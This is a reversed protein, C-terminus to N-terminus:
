IPEPSLSRTTRIRRLEQQRRRERRLQNQPNRCRPIDLFYMRDYYQVPGTFWIQDSGAILADYKSADKFFSEASTYTKASKTLKERVFKSCRKIRSWNVLRPPFGWKFQFYCKLEPQEYDITEADYGLERLRTCLAYAQLMAGYNPVNHITIIGIKM